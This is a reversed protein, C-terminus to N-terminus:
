DKWTFRVPRGQPNGVLRDDRLAFRGRVLTHVPKGTIEWGVFPSWGCKYQLWEKEITWKRGLDVIALDADYGEKLEGKDKIGYLEAPRRSTMKILKELSILGANVKDLMLPLLTQVGPMGSPSDPYPKSKEELTHPAHDSGIVDFLGSVLAGEIAARHEEARVPPNMQVLSGLTEYADANLSLHQPTVECTVPLHAAKAGQILALENLTSIHLIHVPRGTEESLRILRETCRRAAEADRLIPHERWHPHASLLAKRERLRAEDESHVPCPRKGHMLVRRVSDDSEVLLEGTSSGMFIKIGPTGPLMEYEGLREANEDSAGIFYAHDAWARGESRKLKDALAEPTTTTPKTNPMEFITTVGGAVASRTGSEIDEKHELGPERFHVQTDIAGPLIHLGSVDVTEAAEGEVAGVAAIRGDQIALDGPSTGDATALIGGKLILDYRGSM